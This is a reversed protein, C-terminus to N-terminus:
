EKPVNSDIQQTSSDPVWKDLESRVNEVISKQRFKSVKTELFIKSRLYSKVSNSALLLAEKKNAPLTKKYGITLVM